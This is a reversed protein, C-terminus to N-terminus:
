DHCEERFCAVFHSEGVSRMEPFAKKCEEGKEMCRNYFTCYNPLDILGPVSGEISYLRKTKEDCSRSASQLLGRSYPHVPNRFFEKASAQEIVKGAYMVAVDDANEAVVGLDHTILIISMQSKEQLRYLLDLIQAQVTVDLATTPEDAILLAPNCSIAMAIMVRQRMGGSLEHPYNRFVTKEGPIGVEHLLDLAKEGIEAKSLQPNHLAIAEELQYGVTFIPNLSTMPEQFVMAIKNGRIKGMESEDLQLLDVPEEDKPAFIIKGSPIKASNKPFLRLISLGTVSKGCGSEGVIALTKNRKVSLNIGDAAKVTGLDTSFQIRLDSIELLNREDNM